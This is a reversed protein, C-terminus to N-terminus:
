RLMEVLSEIRTRAREISGEGGGLDVEIVPIGASQRIRQLQAHWLDCWLYRVLVLGRLGRQRVKRRLYDHLHTDPRRFADPITDFYMRVLEGLPDLELGREDPMAPRGREGMETADLGVRAGASEVLEYVWRDAQRLPGGVLGIAPCQQLSGADIAAAEGDGAPEQEAFAQDGRRVAERLQEGAPARGGQMVLWRGMRLLEARYLERSAEGWTAPINMLFIPRGDREMIEATRRMQDCTTTM